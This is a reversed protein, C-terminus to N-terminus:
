GVQITKDLGIFQFIFKEAESMEHVTGFVSGPRPNFNKNPRRSSPKCEKFFHSGNENKIWGVIERFQAFNQDGPRAAEAFRRALRAVGQLHPTLKQWRDSTVTEGEASHAYFESGM